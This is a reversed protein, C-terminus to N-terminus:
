VSQVLCDFVVSTYRMSLVGGLLSAPCQRREVDRLGAHSSCRLWTLGCGVCVFVVVVATAPALLAHVSCPV